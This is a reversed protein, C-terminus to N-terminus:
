PVVVAPIRHVMLHPQHMQKNMPYMMPSDAAEFLDTAIAGEVKESEKEDDKVKKLDNWRKFHIGALIANVYLWFRLDGYQNLLCIVAAAVSLMASRMAYDASKKNHNAISLAGALIM